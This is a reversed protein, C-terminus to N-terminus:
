NHTQNYITNQTHQPTATHGRQFHLLLTNTNMNMLENHTAKDYYRSIIGSQHRIVNFLKMMPESLPKYGTQHWPMLHVLAANNEISCEPISKSCHFMLWFVIIKMWSFANSFTTQLITAMQNPGWHYYHLGPNLLRGAQSQKMIEPFHLKISVEGATILNCAMLDFCIKACAMVATSDHCTCFKTAIM